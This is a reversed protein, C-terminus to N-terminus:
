GRPGPPQAPDPPLDAPRAAAEALTDGVRRVVKADNAPVAAAFAEFVDSVRQAGRDSWPPQRKPVQDRNTM